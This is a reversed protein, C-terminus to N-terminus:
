RGLVEAKARAFEADTLQGARHLAALQSLAATVDRGADTPPRATVRHTAAFEAQLRRNYEAQETYGRPGTFPMWTQPPRYLFLM